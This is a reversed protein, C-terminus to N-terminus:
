SLRVYTHCVAERHYCALEGRHGVDETNYFANSQRHVDHQHEYVDSLQLRLVDDDRQFRDDNSSSPVNTHSNTHLLSVATYFVRHVDEAEDEAHLLPEPLQQQLLLTPEHQTQPTYFVVSSM